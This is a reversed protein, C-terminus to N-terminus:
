EVKLGLSSLLAAAQRKSIIAGKFRSADALRLAGLDAGRLDAGELRADTLNADRLSCGTLV